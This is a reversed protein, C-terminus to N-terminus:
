WTIFIQNDFLTFDIRINRFQIWLDMYWTTKPSLQVLPDRWFARRSRLYTPLPQICKQMNMRRFRHHKIIGLFSQLYFQQDVRVVHNQSPDMSGVSHIEVSRHPAALLSSFYCRADIWLPPHMSFDSWSYLHDDHRMFSEIFEMRFVNQFQSRIFTTRIWQESQSSCWAVWFISTSNWKTLLRFRIIKNRTLNEKFAINIFCKQQWREDLRQLSQAIKRLFSVETPNLFLIRM